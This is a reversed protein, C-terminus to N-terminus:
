EPLSNEYNEWHNALELVVPSAVRWAAETSAKLGYFGEEHAEERLMDASNRGPPPMDFNSAARLVLIRRSDVRGAKAQLSLAQCLAIDEEATTVFRGQGDTWYKVWREAWQNMHPGVWFTEESLTDGIMVEPQKQAAPFGNYQRRIAELQPSDPLKVNKTLRYAWSVLAPTLTFEMDAAISQIPPRPHEDPLSGQVPTFGDPWTVPMDRPDILHAAGGNVVHGAWAASAITGTNPNIGAIGALVFYAHSLDFRPDLVLATMAAAMRTPGEGSVLGLVHLDPNYRWHGHYTGPAPIEEKLPLKEVWNQFEGAMDGSDKGIEFTTVVVVRVQIKKQPLKESINNQGAALPAPRAFASGALMTSVGLALMVARCPRCLFYPLM